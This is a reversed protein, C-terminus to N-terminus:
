NEEKFRFGRIWEVERDDYAEGNSRFVDHQWVGRKEASAHPVSQIWQQSKGNVLGRSFWGVRNASYLPLVEEFTSGAQRMLWDTCVVPRQHVSLRELTAEVQRADEFSQFTVLDSRDLVWRNMADSAEQWMAVAVPQDPGEERVWNFMQGLLPLTAEAGGGDGPRNFLDWFLVREDDNYAKVVDRVYRELQPWESRDQALAAGPSPTWRSNHVGEIPEPQPGVQPASGAINMDDMFVPVVQLGNADATEMFSKLRDMFGAPDAKWVVYQLQVRVSTYGADQAWGLEEDIVETDFSGDMWMETSNVAYRPLYNVGKIAGIAEYWIQIREQGWRQGAEGAGGAPLRVGRAARGPTRLSPSVDTFGDSPGVYTIDQSSTLYNALGVRDFGRATNLFALLDGFFAKCVDFQREPMTLVSPDEAAITPAGDRQSVRYGVGAGVRVREGSSLAIWQDEDEGIVGWEGRGIQAIVCTGGHSEVVSDGIKVQIDLTPTPESAHLLIRGRKLDLHIRRVLDAETRPLGDAAFRLQEFELETEPGVCMLAGPSLVMCGRGEEGTLLKAGEGVASADALRRLETRGDHVMGVHVRAQVDGVHAALIAEGKAGAAVAVSSCLPVCGLFMRWVFVRWSMM